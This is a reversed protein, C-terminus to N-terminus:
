TKLKKQSIYIQIRIQAFKQAIVNFFKRLHEMENYCELENLM